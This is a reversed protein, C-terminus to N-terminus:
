ATPITKICAFFVAHVNPQAAAARLTSNVVRHQVLKGLTVHASFFEVHNFRRANSRM